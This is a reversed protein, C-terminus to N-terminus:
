FVPEVIVRKLKFLEKANVAPKISITQTGKEKVSVITVTQKITSLPKWVDREGSKLISFYTKKGNVTLIGEQNENVEDASYELSLKYDGKEVFDVKFQIEDAPTAMNQICPTWKWDGFYLSYQVTGVRANGSLQAANPLLSFEDFQMNVWENASYDEKLEGKYDIVIVADRLDPFAGAVNLYIGDATSESVVTKKNELWYTKSVKIGKIPVFIQGNLSPKFVHVYIKGPKNTTV